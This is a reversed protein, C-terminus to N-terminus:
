TVGGEAHRGRATWCRSTPVGSLGRCSSSRKQMGRVDLCQLDISRVFLYSWIRLFSEYAIIITVEFLFLFAGKSGFKTLTVVWWGSIPDGLEEAKSTLVMMLESRCGRPVEIRKWFETLAPLSRRIFM